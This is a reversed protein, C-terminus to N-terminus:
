GQAEGQAVTVAEQWPGASHSQALPKAERAMQLILPSQRPGVLGPNDCRLRAFWPGQELLLRREQAQGM